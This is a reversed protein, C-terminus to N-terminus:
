NRTPNEEEKEGNEERVKKLLKLINKLHPNGIGRSTDSNAVKEGERAQLFVDKNDMQTQQLYHHKSLKVPLPTATFSTSDWITTTSTTLYRGQKVPYSAKPLPWPSKLPRTQPKPTTNKTLNTTKHNELALNHPCQQQYQSGAFPQTPKNPNTNAPLNPQLILARTIKTVFIIATNDTQASSQIMNSLFALALPSWASFHHFVPTIVTAPTKQPPFIHIIKSRAVIEHPLWWLRNNPRLVTNYHHEPKAGSRTNTVTM